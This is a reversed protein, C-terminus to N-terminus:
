HSKGAEGVRWIREAYRGVLALSIALLLFFIVKNTGDWFLEFYRTYLNIGLFTLGFGRLMGDDTKLSIWICALAALAFLLSWHLLEIQRVSQWIDFDYNGFISLIWLAIFLYLLGMAKSTNLLNRQQLPKQLLYCAALLVGGFLVFRIPYNMGLWYAGWGSAYGTSTGFYSGLSLLFFLWILGSRSLYGIVAYIACGLLFLPAVNGSGNDLAMGVQSLTLATFLVGLFMIAENSYRKEPTHKQRRFGWFYCATAILALIIARTAYGFDFLLAMLYEDAVLSGIAIIACALAIWFAYRSLRQWDFLQPSLHQQLRQQEAEDIVGEQRWGDLTRLVIKQQKRTVKM